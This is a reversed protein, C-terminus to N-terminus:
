DDSKLDNIMFHVNFCCEKKIKTKIEIEIKRIFDINCKDIIFYVNLIILLRFLVVVLHLYYTILIM